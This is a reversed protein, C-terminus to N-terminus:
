NKCCYFFRMFILKLEVLVCTRHSPSYSSPRELHDTKQPFIESSEVDDVCQMALLQSLKVCGNGDDDVIDIGKERECHNKCMEDDAHSDFLYISWSALNHILLSLQTRTNTRQCSQCSFFFMKCHIVLNKNLNENM